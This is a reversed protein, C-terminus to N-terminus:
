LLLEESPTGDSAGAMLLKSTYAPLRCIKNLYPESEPEGGYTSTDLLVKWANVDKMEPLVFEQELNGAHFLSFFYNMRQQEQNYVKLLYGLTKLHHQAWHSSQMQEGDPSFWLIETDRDELGEHVYNDHQMLPYQKKLGILRSVFAQIEKGADSIEAWNLWSLENDQCYANNNGLLSRGFEDGSALMPTGQSVLLTTLFNKSQRSRIENVELLLTPGEVGYNESFNESHGDRNNELNLENHRQKYSVM